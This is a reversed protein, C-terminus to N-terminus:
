RRYPIPFQPESGLSKSLTVDHPGTAGKETGDEGGSERRQGGKRKEGEM